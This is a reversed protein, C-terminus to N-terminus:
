LDHIMRYTNESNGGEGEMGFSLTSRHNTYFYRVFMKFLATLDMKLKSLSSHVKMSILM